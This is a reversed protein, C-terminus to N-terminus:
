CPPMVSSCCRWRVPPAPRVPRPRVEVCPRAALEFSTSSMVPAATRNRRTGYFAYITHPPMQGKGPPHELTTCRACLLIQPRKMLDPAYTGGNPTHGMVIIQPDCHVVVVRDCMAVSFAKPKKRVSGLQQPALITCAQLWLPAIKLLLPLSPARRSSDSREAISRRTHANINRSPQWLVRTIQNSHSHAGARSWMRPFCNARVRMLADVYAVIWLISRELIWAAM